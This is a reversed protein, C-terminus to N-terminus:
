ISSLEGSVRIMDNVKKSMLATILLYILSIGLSAAWDGWVAATQLGGQFSANLGSIGWSLPIAGSLWTTWHPLYEIPFMFAALIAVPLELFNIFMGSARSWIRLHALFVGLCWFGFMLILLSVLIFSGVIIRVLRETTMNM